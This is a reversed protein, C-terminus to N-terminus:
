PHTGHAIEKEDVPVDVPLHARFCTGQGPTSDVDLRGGFGRVVIERSLTLGLGTGRHPDKTTFFPEFIRPLVKPDIGTGQDRVELTVANGAIELRVGVTAAPSSADAANILLNLLVQSLREPSGHLLVPQEPVDLRVECKATKLRHQVLLLADQIVERVDFTRPEDGDRQRTQHRLSSVYGVAREVAREGLEAAEEIERAIERHDEPGVQPDGISARYEHSLSRLRALAARAAGLPTNMEHAIGAMLRGISAMKESLLVRQQEVALHRYADELERWRRSAFVAFGLTSAFVAFVM